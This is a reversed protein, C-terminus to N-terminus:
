HALLLIIIKTKTKCWTGIQADCRVSSSDMETSYGHTNTFGALSSIECSKRGNGVVNFCSTFAEATCDFRQGGERGTDDDRAAAQM